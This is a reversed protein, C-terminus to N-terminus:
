RGSGGGVTPRPRALGAQFAGTVVREVEKPTWPRKPDFSPMGCDADVLAARAFDAPIGGAGALRGISYSENRLTTRQHGDVADRIKDCAYQIAADGYPSLGRCPKVPKAPRRSPKPAPAILWSPAPALDLTEPNCHKDWHYGGGRSPAIVYGSNGRVDLGPGLRGESSPIDCGDDLDAFFYSHWGGSSTHAIWTECLLSHGLAALTDPGYKGEFKVDVDLVALGSPGTSVGILAEPWKEWWSRIIEPDNSADRFGHTLLPQKRDTGELWKCPLLWWGFEEVYALAFDLPKPTM